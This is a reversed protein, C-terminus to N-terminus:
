SARKKMPITTDSPYAESFVYAVGEPGVWTLYTTQGENGRVSVEKVKREGYHSSIAVDGPKLSDRRVLELPEPFKLWGWETVKAVPAEEPRHRLCVKCTVAAWNNSAELNGYPDAPVKHFEPVEGLWIGERVNSNFHVKSAM